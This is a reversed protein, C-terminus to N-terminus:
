TRLGLSGVQEAIQEASSVFVQNVSESAIKKLPIAVRASRGWGAVLHVLVEGTDCIDHGKELPVAWLIWLPFCTYLVPNNEGWKFDGFFRQLM